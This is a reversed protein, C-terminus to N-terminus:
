NNTHNKKNELFDRPSLNFVEKFDKSFHNPYKYGLAYAVESITQEQSSLLNQAEQMKIKRKFQSTSLGTLAKIKRHLNPRSTGIGECIKKISLDDNSINEKIFDIFLNLFDQDIKSISPTAIIEESITAKFQGHLLRRVEILNKIRISLEEKKFPKTLYADAGYTLGKLKAEDSAQATLMIIPIHSTSPHSKITQCVEFGDKVPMRVDSIILDPIQELATKIGEDGNLATLIHYHEQLYNKLFNLIDISDEVLLITSKQTSDDSTPFVPITDQFDATPIPFNQKELVTTPAINTIPLSITFQTGKGPQSQVNIQGNLLKVLQQVLALGIGTGFVEDKQTQHVRYYRNFILPLDKKPIGIGNDIVHILLQNNEKETNIIIEGNEPTFKVANSLLNSIIQALKKYDFDMMLTELSTKFIVNINKTSAYNEWANQQDKLFLILDGQLFQVEMSGDEAKALDLMDNILRLMNQTSDLIVKKQTENDSIDEAMGQIITLPTRLEHNTNAFFQSRREEFEKSKKNEYALIAKQYNEENLKKEALKKDRELLKSRYALAISFFIMELIVGGLYYSYGDYLIGKEPTNTFVETMVFCIFSGITFSSSGIFILKAIQGSLRLSQYLVSIALLFTSFFMIGRILPYWKSHLSYGFILDIPIFFLMAWGFYKLQNDVKKDRNITDLMKRCFNVYFYYSFMLIPIVFIEIQHNIYQNSIIPYDSIRELIFYLYTFTSLLYFAYYTYTTDRNIFIYQALAIISMFMVMIMAMFCPFYQSLHHKIDSQNLRDLHNKTSLLAQFDSDSQYKKCTLKFLYETEAGPVPPLELWGMQQKHNLQAPMIGYGTQGSRKNQHYCEVQHHIGLNVWFPHQITDPYFVHLKLWYEEGNKYQFDATPPEFIAYDPPLDGDPINLGSLIILHASIDSIENNSYKSVILEPAGNHGYVSSFISFHLLLIIFRKTSM